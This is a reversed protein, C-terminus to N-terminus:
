FNSLTMIVNAQRANQDSTQLMRMNLDFMRTQNIMQVMAAASNVNSTEYVGQVVKVAEDLPAPPQNTPLEFFGDEARRLERVNPNVLKFRAIQNYQLEGGERVLIAGDRGVEVEAGAPITIPGDEGLVIINKGLKFVGEEDRFFRGARTYAESGDARRVAFFGDGDIAFDNPNDTKEIAGPNFIATPTSDVVFARSDSQEGDLPVARFSTVMERFGPTQANALNNSTTAMQGMAHKAGTMAVYAMRDIM